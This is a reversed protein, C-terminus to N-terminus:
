PKNPTSSDTSRCPLLWQQWDSLSVHAGWNNHGSEPLMVVQAEPISAGLKKAHHIPIVTDRVAGVITVPGGYELLAKKSDMEQHLLLSVPFYPMLEQALSALSQWPTIAVLGCVKAKQQAAVQAAVGAGFSEGMLVVPEAPYAKHIEEFDRPAQSLIATVSADGARGDFGPYEVLVVRYGLATLPKAFYGRDKAGGANGHFVVVTARPSASPEFVLWAPTAGAPSAKPPPHLILSDQGLYLVGCVLIYARGVGRAARGCWALATKPLSSSFISTM